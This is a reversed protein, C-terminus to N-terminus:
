VPIEIQREAAEAHARIGKLQKRIELADVCEFLLAKLLRGTFGYAYLRMRALLRPGAGRPELLYAFSMDGNVGAVIPLDFGGFVIVRGPELKLIEYGWDAMMGVQPPPLDRRLYTASPIGRNSLLDIGYWGTHDRGMQALWPWVAQAPADIDIAQTIQQNPAPVVDDGPLRRQSEGLRTGWKIMQPRLFFWYGAGSLLALNVMRRM